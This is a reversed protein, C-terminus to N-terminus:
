LLWMVTGLFLTERGTRQHHQQQAPTGDVHKAATTTKRAAAHRTRREKGERGTAERADAGVAGQGGQDISQARTSERGEEEVRETGDERGHRGQMGGARAVSGRGARGGADAARKALAQERARGKMYRILTGAITWGMGEESTRARVSGGKRSGKGTSPTLRRDPEAAQQRARRQAATEKGRGAEWRERERRM